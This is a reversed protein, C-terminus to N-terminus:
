MVPTASIGTIRAFAKAVGVGMREFLRDLTREKYTFDVIEEAGIVDRAVMGASGLEDALGLEISEAGTWFLGSFLDQDHKLRDGRGSKVVSIFEMHLKDLLAQLFARDQEELPSFPDGMAKHEGATLSRQEIGLKELTDVFGFNDM